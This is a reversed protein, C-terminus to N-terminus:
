RMLMVKRTEYVRPGALRLFYLGAPLRAGSEGTGDWVMTEAGARLEGDVLTRVRRGTVDYVDLRVQGAQPISFDVTTPGRTPNPAPPGLLGVAAPPAPEDVGVATSWTLAWVDNRFPIGGFVVMRGRAADYVASHAVRGDPPPGEPSLLSWATAGALALAWTEPSAASGGIGGFVVMRDGAPDYVATHGARAGPKTGAPSLATWATAGALSLAWADNLRGSADGGFVVMRDRPRDYIASHQLRTWPPTGMPSLQTWAPTGALSLVWVDNYTGYSVGDFGTGAFVVMRDRGRDYIATHYARPIPPAGTPALQTWTPTGALSLVWVDNLYQVGPTLGGFVIMRDRLPDYIASHGYRMSPPTGANALASWVPTGSLSLAWLDNPLLGQVTGGGYVIMRARLSDVIACHFNRGIPPSGNPTLETWAPPEALALEWLDNRAGGAETMGGFLVARDRVPDYIASQYFRAGPATGDPFLLTWTPTGALSLATADVYPMGSGLGGIVVMRDRPADYIASHGDRGYPPTGAPSLESWAPGILRLEWLDRPIASATHGGFVLMRHRLPDYIASSLSRPAPPTGTPAMQTWASPGSLSLAWVDNALGAVTEGGFLVVRDSVPDYIASASHRATPPTGAPTLEIWPAAGTLSLAWVDNFFFPSSGSRGGFIVVRHRVPDYVMSAGYRGAPPTGSPNLRYWAPPGSLPLVWVDNLYRNSSDVGGFVLLRDGGRDYVASHSRRSDIVLESWAGDTADAPREPSLAPVAVPAPDAAPADGGGALRLMLDRQWPQLETDSAARSLRERAAPALEPAGPPLPQSTAPDPIALILLLLAFRRALSRFWQIPRM